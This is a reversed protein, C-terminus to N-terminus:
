VVLFRLRECRKMPSTQSDDQPPYAGVAVMVMGPRSASLADIACAASSAGGLLPHPRVDNSDLFTPFMNDLPWHGTTPVSCSARTTCADCCYLLCM